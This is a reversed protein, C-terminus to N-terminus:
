INQSYVQKQYGKLIDLEKRKSMAAMKVFNHYWKKLKKDEDMIEIWKEKTIREIEKYREQSQERSEQQLNNNQFQKRAWEDMYRSRVFDEIGSQLNAYFVLSIQESILDHPGNETLESSWFDYMAYESLMVDPDAVSWPDPQTFMRTLPSTVISEFENGIVKEFIEFRGFVKPLVHPYTKSLSRIFKLDIKQYEEGVRIERVDLRLNAFLYLAYLIGVPTLSYTQIKHKPVKKFGDEHVLQTWLLNNQIFERVDDTISKLKRSKSSKRDYQKEAIEECTAQKYYSLHKLIFRLIKQGKKKPNENSPNGYRLDLQKFMWEVEALSESPYPLKPATFKKDLGFLTSKSIKNDM